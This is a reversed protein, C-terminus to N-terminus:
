CGVAASSTPSPHHCAAPGPVATLVAAPGAVLPRLLLAQELSLAQQQPLAPLCCLLLRLLCQQVRLVAQPCPWSPQASSTLSPSLHHLGAKHCRLGPLLVQQGWDRDAAAAAGAQSLQPPRPYLLM